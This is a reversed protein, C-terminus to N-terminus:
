SAMARRKAGNLKLSIAALDAISDDSLNPYSTRLKELTTPM